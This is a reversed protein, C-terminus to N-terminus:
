QGPINSKPTNNGFRHLYMEQISITNSTASQRNAPSSIYTSLTENYRGSEIRGMIVGGDTMVNPTSPMTPGSHYYKGNVDYSNDSGAHEMNSLHGAGHNIQFAAGEAFSVKAKDSFKQTAETGVAIINDNNGGLAESRPNQSQEPNVINDAGSSGFNKVESSFSPNFTNIKAVVNDRNGIVAVADTKDLKGYAKSDFNGKFIRVQTKVGLEKFNATAKKEIAKLEKRTTGDAAVLYVINDRGDPDIFLMPNNFAYIYPSLSPYKGALPDINHWVGLQPDLMRAGYDLWELGSGDSFEKNQEEKGNYKYKSTLSGAAKSSIGAKTM